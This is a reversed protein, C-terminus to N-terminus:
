LLGVSHFVYNDYAFLHEELKYPEMLNSVASLKFMSMLCFGLILVFMLM